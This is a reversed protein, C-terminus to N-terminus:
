NQSNTPSTGSGKTARLLMLYTGSASLDIGTVYEFNATNNLTANKM